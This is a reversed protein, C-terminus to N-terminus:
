KRRRYVAFGLALAGFIAAWTAPEPILASNFLYGDADVSWTGDLLEGDSNYAVFTMVQTSNGFVFTGSSILETTLGAIKVLKAGFDRFTFVSTTARTDLPTINGFHVEAGNLKFTLNATRLLVFNGFSYAADVDKFTITSIGSVDKVFLVTDSKVMNSPASLKLNGGSAYFAIGYSSITSTADVDYTGQGIGLYASSNSVIISANNKLTVTTNLTHAALTYVSGSSNETVTGGDITMNGMVTSYGHGSLSKTNIVLSGNVTAIGGNTFINAATSSGVTLTKGSGITLAASSSTSTFTGITASSSFTLSTSATEMKIVASALSTSNSAITASGGTVSVTPVAGSTAPSFTGYANLTSANLAIADANVTAGENVTLVTAALASLTKSTTIISGSNFTLTAASGSMYAANIAGGSSVTLSGHDTLYTGSDSPTASNAIANITGAVTTNTYNVTFKGLTTTSGVNVIGGVNFIPLRITTTSNSITLGGAANMTIGTGVDVGRDITDAGLAAPDYSLSITAGTTKSLTVTGSTDTRFKYILLANSASNMSIEIAGSAGTLALTAGEELYTVMNNFQGGSGSVFLGRYSATTGAAIKVYYDVLGRSVTGNTGNAKWLLTDDATVIYPAGSLTTTATTVQYYAQAQSAFALATLLLTLKKM